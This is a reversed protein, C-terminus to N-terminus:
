PLKILKNRQQNLSLQLEKLASAQKFEIWGIIRRDLTNKRHQSTDDMWIRRLESLKTDCSLKLVIIRLSVSTEM